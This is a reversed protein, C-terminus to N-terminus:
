YAGKGFLVAPITAFLLELDFLLSYSEVYYLDLWIMENFGINSRGSVQWLGTIGPKVKSRIKMLELMEPTADLNEFDSLPLPRPGVLSMDGRLVNFLQPLEDISFKRLIRGVRTVRPDNKIKFLLGDTENKDLLSEKLHEANQIMSRFKIFDFVNSGVASARKQTFFIPKGSELYIALAAIAFIPSFIIILILSFIIDFFRKSVKKIYDIKKREPSYLTIGAIDYINAYRLLKEAEVSLIKLKVQYKKCIDVVKNFNEEDYSFSPIFVRAINNKKVVDELECMRYIPIDNGNIKISQSNALERKYLIGKIRYGLEPFEFFRELVKHFRNDYGVLLTHYVGYGKKELFHNIISLTFRGLFFTFPLVLFFLLTFKQPINEIHFTYQVSLLILVSLVYAKSALFYMRQNNSHLTARYLGILMGLIILVLGYFSTLVIYLKNVTPSYGYFQVVISNAIYGSIIIAVTDSAVALAILIIRWNNRLAKGINM